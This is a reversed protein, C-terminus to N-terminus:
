AVFAGRRKIKMRLMRRRQVICALLRDGVLYNRTLDGRVNNFIWRALAIAQKKTKVEDFTQSFV